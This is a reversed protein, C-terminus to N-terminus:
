TVSQRCRQGENARSTWSAVVSTWCCPERSAIYTFLNRVAVLRQNRTQIANGRTQELDRLFAAVVTESIDTVLLQVASKKAQRAAFGLLLKLADRYSQITHRSVNCRCVLHDEFFSRVYPALPFRQNM